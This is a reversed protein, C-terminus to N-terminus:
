KERALRFVLLLFAGVVILAIDLGSYYYYVAPRTCSLYDASTGDCFRAAHFNLLGILLLLLGLFADSERWIIRVRVLLWELARDAGYLITMWTLALYGPRKKQPMEHSDMAAIRAHGACNAIM